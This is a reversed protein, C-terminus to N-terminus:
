SAFTPDFEEIYLNVTPVAPAIWGTEMELVHLAVASYADAAQLNDTETALVHGPNVVLGYADLPIGSTDGATLSGDAGPYASYRQAASAAQVAGAGALWYTTTGDGLTLVVHRDAVTADTTLTAVVSRVVWLHSGTPGTSIENGAGPATVPIARYRIDALRRGM